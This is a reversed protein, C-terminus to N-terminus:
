PFTFTCPSSQVFSRNNNANDLARSVLEQHARYPSASKTLGHAALDANAEGMLAAVTAFGQPNASSTGPSYVLAGGSVFGYRVNLEMAALQASLMYAMNNATASGLWSQFARVTAPDFNAGNASRLNLGVLFALAGSDAGLIRAAQKNTWFGITLGGGAGVCVNGFWVTEDGAAAVTVSASTPTTALWNIQTPVYEAVTYTNPALTADLPTSGVIDNAIVGDSISVKWGTIPSSDDNIGNANADYFKRVHIQGTAPQLPTGCGTMIANDIPLEQVEQDALWGYRNCGVAAIAHGPAITWSASPTASGVPIIELRVKLFGADDYFTHKFTYWGSAALCASGAGYPTAGIRFANTSANAVWGSCTGDGTGVNFAYDQLFTGSSNNIASDWDFRTGRCTADSSPSSATLCTINGGYSDPNAQAYAADLYIDLQTSYGGTWTANYGGFRTYPGLCYVTTGGGGQETGCEPRGARAHHTGGASSIASAYSASLYGDSVRTLTGYGAPSLWGTTDTEFGNAYSPNVAFVANPAAAMLVAAIVAM